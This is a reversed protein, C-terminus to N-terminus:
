WEYIVVERWFAHHLELNLVLAAVIPIGVIALGVARDLPSAVLARAVQPDAQGVAVGHQHALVILTDVYAVAVVIQDVASRTDDPAPAIGNPRGISM